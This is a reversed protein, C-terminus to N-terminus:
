VSPRTSRLVSDISSPRSRRRRATSSAGPSGSRRTSCTSSVNTPVPPRTGYDEAVVRALVAPDGGGAHNARGYGVLHVVGQKDIVGHCLPGPLESYGNRCIDVSDQTGSTVTHHIMVGNVPGWPGKTNRTHTEWDGVEVVTVGEDRLLKAFTAASPPTAM